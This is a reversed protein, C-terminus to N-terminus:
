KGKEKAKFKVHIPVETPKEAVFGVSTGDKTQFAVKTPRNVVKHADFEVTKKQAMSFGKTRNRRSDLSPESRGRHIGLTLGASV